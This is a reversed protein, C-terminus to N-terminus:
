EEKPRPGCISEAETETIVGKDAYEWVKEASIKHQLYRLRIFNYM